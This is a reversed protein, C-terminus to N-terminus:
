VQFQWALRFKSIIYTIKALFFLNASKKKKWWCNSAPFCNKPDLDKGKFPCKIEVVTPDYCQCTRIGDLSAGIWSYSHSILVGPKQLDFSCPQKEIVKSYNFKANEEERIGHDIAEPYEQNEKFGKQKTFHKISLSVDNHPEKEFTKQQTYLSKIEKGTIFLHRMEHWCKNKHKGMTAKNIIMRDNDSFTLAKLFEEVFYLLNEESLKHFNTGIYSKHDPHSINATFIHFDYIQVASLSTYIFAIKATILM